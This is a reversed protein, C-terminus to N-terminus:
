RTIDIDKKRLLIKNNHIQEIEKETCIIGIEKELETSNPIHVGEGCYYLLPMDVGEPLFRKSKVKERALMRYAGIPDLLINSSEEFNEKGVIYPSLSRYALDGMLTNDEKKGPIGRLSSLYDSISDCGYEKPDGSVMILFTNRDIYNFCRTPLESKTDPNIFADKHLLFFENIGIKKVSSYLVDLKLKQLYNIYDNRNDYQEPKILLLGVDKGSIKKSSDKFYASQLYNYADEIKDYKEEKVARALGQGYVFEALKDNSVLFDHYTILNRSSIEAMEGGLIKRVLLENNQLPSLRNNERIEIM